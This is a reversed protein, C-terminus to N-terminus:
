DLDYAYPIRALAIVLYAAVFLALVAFTLWALGHGRARLLMAHYLSRMVSVTGARSHPNRDATLTHPVPSGDVLRAHLTTYHCLCVAEFCCRISLVTCGMSCIRHIALDQRCLKSQNVRGCWYRIIVLPHI